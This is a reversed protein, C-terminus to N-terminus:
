NTVLRGISPGFHHAGDGTAVQGALTFILPLGSLRSAAIAPMCRSKCWSIPRILPLASENVCVAIAPWGRWRLSKRTPSAFCREAEAMAAQNFFHGGADRLNGVMSARRAIDASDPWSDLSPALTIAQHLSSIRRM